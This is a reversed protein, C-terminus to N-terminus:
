GGALRPRGIATVTVDTDFYIDEDQLHVVHDERHTQLQVDAAGARRAQAEALLSAQEVAYAAAEELEAFDHVGNPLHARFGEEEDLPKILARVIQMVGGAVAGLANAIEAHQPICLQTRLREAVVPYYTQVPAGIAVLPRRLTLTVDV